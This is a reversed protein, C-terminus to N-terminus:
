CSILSEYERLTSALSSVSYLFMRVPGKGFFSKNSGDVQCWIPYYSPDVDLKGKTVYTLMVSDKRVLKHLSESM